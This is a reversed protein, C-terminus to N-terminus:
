HPRPAPPPRVLWGALMHLGRPFAALGAHLRASGVWAPRSHLSSAPSPPGAKPLPVGARRSSPPCPRGAREASAWRTQVGARIFCLPFPLSRRRRRRKPPRPPPRRPLSFVLIRPLPVRGGGRFRPVRARPGRVAAASSARRREPAQTLPRALNERRSAGERSIPLSVGAGNFFHGLCHARPPSPPSAPKCALSWFRPNQVAPGRECM